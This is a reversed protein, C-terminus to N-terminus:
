SLLTGKRGKKRLTVASLKKQFFAQVEPTIETIKSMSRTTCLADLEKKIAPVQALAATLKSTVPAPPGAVNTAQCLTFALDKRKLLLSSVCKPHTKRASILGDGKAMTPVASSAYSSAQTQRLLLSCNQCQLDPSVHLSAQLEHSSITSYYHHQPQKNQKTIINKLSIHNSLKMCFILFLCIMWCVQGTCIGHERRCIVSMFNPQLM